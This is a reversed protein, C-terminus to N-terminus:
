TRTEPAKASEFSDLVQGILALAPTDPLYWLPLM